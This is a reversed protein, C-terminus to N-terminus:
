LFDERKKLSLKWVLLPFSTILFANDRAMSGASTALETTETATACPWSARLSAVSEVFCTFATSRFLNGNLSVDSKLSACLPKIAARGDPTILPSDPLRIQFGPWYLKMSSFAFAGSVTFGLRHRWDWSM